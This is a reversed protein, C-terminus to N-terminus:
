QSQKIQIEWSEEKSLKDLGWAKIDQYLETIARGAESPKGETCFEAIIALV